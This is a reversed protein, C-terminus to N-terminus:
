EGAEDDPTVYQYFASILKAIEVKYKNLFRVTDLSLVFLGGSVITNFDFAEIRDQNLLSELSQNFNAKILCQPHAAYYRQKWFQQTFELALKAAFIVGENLESIREVAQPNVQQMYYEAIDDVPTSPLPSTAAVVKAVAMAVIRGQDGPAKVIRHIADNLFITSASM